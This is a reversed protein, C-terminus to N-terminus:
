TGNGVGSGSHPLGHQSADATTGESVGGSELDGFAEEMRRIMWPWPRPEVNQVIKRVFAETNDIKPQVAPVVDKDHTALSSCSAITKSAVWSDSSMTVCPTLVTCGDCVAAAPALVVVRTRAM